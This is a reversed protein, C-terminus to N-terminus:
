RRDMASDNNAQGRSHHSFIHYFFLEGSGRSTAELQSANIWKTPLENLVSQAGEGVRGRGAICIVIPGVSKPTGRHAIDAGVQRLSKRLELVSRMMFPRPLNLFPTSAGMALAKM